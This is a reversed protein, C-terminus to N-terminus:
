REKKEWRGKLVIFGMPMLSHNETTRGLITETKQFEALKPLQCTASSRNVAVFVAEKGKVRLYCCISDTFSVPLFEAEAFLERYEKRMEGLAKVHQFIDEDRKEWQFCWRNFPDMYGVMGIEDGYYICPTGVM